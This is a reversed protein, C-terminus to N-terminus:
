QGCVGSKGSIECVDNVAFEVGEHKKAEDYPVSTLPQGGRAGDPYCTIGRLKPAYRRLIEANRAILDPNNHESGWAPLNITSSIGQDVYSQITAQFAVRREFDKALEVATEISEPAIGHVSILQEAMSDIVYQYKRGDRTLYQRRCAVSYVPEIGSTTGALLSLTGAPAIARMAVPRSINLADAFENATRTSGAEYVRLWSHLEPPVEYKYGRLLLWEHVGTLGLGLRRNKERVKAVKEYPLHARLTGCILFKTALEVIHRFENLNCIASLNISGLNCVDSDDESTIEACNSVLVGEAMFSHEPYHVDCCYVDETRGSPNISEVRTEARELSFYDDTILSHPTLCKAPVRNIGTKPKGGHWYVHKVIFPHEPDCTISRGNTLNVTVTSVSRATLKFVTDAWRKGTWVICPKDVLDKVQRYGNFTLVHTDGSVPANRLTENEKEYFNFSFGPEGTSTAQAVNAIFTADDDGELWTTDYNVSINTMDLPAPWDFDLAKVDALTKDTGPVNVSAWNKALLFEDIDAHQWNLSAYLASRRAGGQMVRRGIDNILLMKPIPGSAVGGTRSLAAGEPRYVSYDTGIGGGTMLCMESKWSLNAWDERSDEEARLTFCNNFFKADRGAYYLYRGGPLFQMKVMIQILDAIDSPPMLGDCVDYALVECLLPWTECGPHMYKQRFITEAVSNRFQYM